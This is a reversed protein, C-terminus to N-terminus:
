KICRVGYRDKKYYWDEKGDGFYFPFAALKNEKVETSTWYSVSLEFGPVESSKNYKNWLEKFQKKSPLKGNQKTCYANADKWSMRKSAEKLWVLDQAYTFSTLLITSVLVKKFTLFMM